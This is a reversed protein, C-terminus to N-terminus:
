KELPDNLSGDNQELLRYPYVEPYAGLEGVASPRCVPALCPLHAMSVLENGVPVDRRLTSIAAAAMPPAHARVFM